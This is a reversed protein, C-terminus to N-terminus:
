RRLEETLYLFHRLALGSREIGARGVAHGLEVAEPDHLVVTLRVAHVAAVANEEVVLALATALVEHRALDRKGGAANGLTILVLEIQAVEVGQAVPTVGLVVHLAHPEDQLLRLGIVEHNSRALIVCHAVEGCQGEMVHADLEFPLALTNVLLTDVLGGATHQYLNIGLIETRCLHLLQEAVGALCLFDQAPIGSLGAELIEDLDHDVM